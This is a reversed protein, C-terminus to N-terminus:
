HQNRKSREIDALIEFLTSKPCRKDEGVTPVTFAFGHAAKWLELEDSLVEVRACGAKELQAAVEQQDLLHVAIM